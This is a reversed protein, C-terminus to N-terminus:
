AEREVSSTMPPQWESFLGLREHGIILSEMSMKGSRECCPHPIKNDLGAVALVFHSSNWTVGCTFLAVM